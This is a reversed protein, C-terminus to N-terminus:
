WIFTRRCTNPYKPINFRTKIWKKAGDAGIQIFMWLSKKPQADTKSLQVAEEWSIWQIDQAQANFGIFVIFLLSIQTFISRM